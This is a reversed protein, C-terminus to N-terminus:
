KSSASKRKDKSRKQKSNKKQTEAVLHEIEEEEGVQAKLYAEIFDSRRLRLAMPAVKRVDEQEASERGDAIAHARAAEFLTIEARLSHIGLESIFRLGCAEAEKTLSVETLKERALIIEERVVLTADQHEAIVLHPSNRHAISRKYAELREDSEDLGRVIVRLGFRDLIQPRLRGEEPNMSGILAMRSRYTATLPGRHVTFIGQASADLISDVIEDDLLNVEDVFLINRDARSLIGRDLRLRNHTAAREDIGGIVDEIRSNLPLEILRVKDLYTLEEGEGFRRACDPCVAEIGGATIDEPLCGYSCRSRPVNPLLETIGRVATTKGTGRPGILLVGGINPNILALLIALKMERQGVIALFPFPLHEALGLDEPSPTELFRDASTRSILDTLSRISESM